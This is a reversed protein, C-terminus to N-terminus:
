CVGEKPRAKEVLERLEARTTVINLVRKHYLDTKRYTEGTLREVTLAETNYVPHDAVFGEGEVPQIAAWVTPWPIRLIVSNILDFKSYYTVGGTATEQRLTEPAVLYAMVKVVPDDTTLGDVDYRTM